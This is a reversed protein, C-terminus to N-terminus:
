AALDVKDVGTQLAKVNDTNKLMRVGLNYYFGPSRLRVPFYINDNGVRRQAEEQLRENDVLRTLRKIAGTIVRQPTVIPSKLVQLAEDMSQDFFDAKEIPSMDVFGNPVGMGPILHEVAEPVLAVRRGVAAAGLIDIHSFDVLSKRQTEPPPALVHEEYISHLRQEERPRMGMQNYPTESFQSLVMDKLYKSVGKQIYFLRQFYVHQYWWEERNQTNIIIPVEEPDDPMFQLYADLVVLGNSDRDFSERPKSFPRYVYDSERCIGERKM